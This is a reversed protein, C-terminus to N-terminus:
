TESGYTQPTVYKEWQVYSNNSGQREVQHNIQMLIEQQKNFICIQPNRGLNWLLRHSSISSDANESPVGPSEKPYSRKLVM